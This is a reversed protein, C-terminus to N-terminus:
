RHVFIAKDKVIGLEHIPSRPIRIATPEVRTFSERVTKIGLRKELSYTIAQDSALTHRPFMKNLEEWDNFFVNVMKVHWFVMFCGCLGVHPDVEDWTGVDASVRWRNVPRNFRTLPSQYAHYGISEVAEDFRSEFEDTPMCDFDTCVVPGFLRIAERVLHLKHWFHIYGDPQCYCRDDVQTINRAGHSHLKGTAWEGMTIYQVKDRFFNGVDRKFSLDISHNLLRASRALMHERRRDGPLRSTHGKGDGYLVRVFTITM